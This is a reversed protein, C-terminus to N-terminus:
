TLVGGTALRIINEPNAQSKDLTGALHGDHMVAVRHSLGLLEDMESSILLIATGRAALAVLLRYIEAKAGVDIGRTPEDMILFKPPTSLWRGIVIKQQNGGSLSGGAADLGGRAVIGLDAALRAALGREARHDLLGTFRGLGRLRLATLSACSLNERIPRDLFLGEHRRDETVFAMGADISARPTRSQLATEAVRVSGWSRNLGFIARAVETRGSGMLGALGLIEGERIDLDVDKVRKGDALGRVELTKRPGPPQPGPIGDSLERGVMLAELRPRAIAAAPTQEVVLGDRLVVIRNALRFIEELFHSIYLVAVNEAALQEVVSLVNDREALNLSATPEDFIVVAPDSALAKAIEVLQREGPALDQVLANPGFQAGVRELLPRAQQALENPRVFPSGRRRALRSILVNEAVSLHPFLSLEQHIAALGLERADGAGGTLQRGAIRIVGSDPRVIGAVLNKITSKGAGNEGALAVVEGPAISFSVGSVARIGDYSKEAAEIELAPRLDSAAAGRSPAM